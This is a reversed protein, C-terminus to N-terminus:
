WVDRPRREVPPPTVPTAKGGFHTTDLWFACVIGQKTAIALTFPGHISFSRSTGRKVGMAAAAQAHAGVEDLRLRAQAVVQTIVGNGKRLGILESVDVEEDFNVIPFAAYEYGHSTDPTAGRQLSIRALGEGLDDSMTMYVSCPGQTAPVLIDGLVGFQGPRMKVGPVRKKISPVWVSSREGPTAWKALLDLVVAVAVDPYSVSSLSIDYGRKSLFANIDGSDHSGIAEVVGPPLSNLIDRFADLAGVMNKQRTNYGEWPASGLRSEAHIMCAALIPDIYVAKM